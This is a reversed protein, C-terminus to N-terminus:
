AADNGRWARSLLFGAGLAVLLSVGSITLGAAMMQEEANYHLHELLRASLSQYGPPSLMVTAEIEQLSMAMVALAVGLAVPWHTVGHSLWWARLTAGGQLTLRSQRLDAPELAALAWGVVCGVVGLRAVHALFLGLGGDLLDAWWGPGLNGMMKVATGVLVGPLLAAFAFVAFVVVSLVRLPEGRRWSTARLAWFGVAVVGVGAGVAASQALARLLLPGTGQWFTLLTRTSRLGVWFLIIPALISLGLALWLLISDSRLAAPRRIAVKPNELLQGLAKTLLWAGAASTLLLPWARPWVLEAPMTGLDAWIRISITDIQALHLPVASGLMLMAILLISAWIGGRVQALTVLTRRLPSAGELALADAHDRDLRAFHTSLLLAAIPWSWLVLGLVGLAQDIGQITSPHLRAIWDGLPTTPRRLVNWGAYSLYTPLLLPLCILAAPIAPRRSLALLRAPGIALLTALAGITLPYALSRILQGVFPPAEPAPQAGVGLKPDFQLVAIGAAALPLVVAALTIAVLLGALLWRGIAPPEPQHATISM